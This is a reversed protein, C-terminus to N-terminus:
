KVTSPPSFHVLESPRCASSRPARDRCGSARSRGRAPCTRGRSRCGRRSSLASRPWTSAAFHELLLGIRKGTFCPTSTCGAGCGRRRCARTGPGRRRVGGVVRLEAGGEGVVQLVLHARALLDRRLPSFSSALRLALVRRIGPQSSSRLSSSSLLGFITSVTFSASPTSRADDDFPRHLRPEM